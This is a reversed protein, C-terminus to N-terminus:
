NQSNKLSEFYRLILLEYDKQYGLKLSKIMDRFSEEINEYEPLNDPSTLQYEKGSASERKKEYDRDHISKTADLLRSLIRDQKKLTEDDINGSQMDNLVEQMEKKIKELDGLTKREEGGFEKQEKSLEDLSKSAKGQKDTLRGIEARQEMSMSGQGQQMMQQMSQNIMQQQAALQQMRQSFSAGGSGQQGSGAGGPNPCSGGGQMASLMNQMQMAANNMSSMAASQEKSAQMPNRNEYNQQAKQMERLADGIEKAMEPTVALSKDSLEMLSNAVNMLAEQIDAQDRSLNPIQQSNYDASQSMQKLYEQNKSLNLLDSVAKQMKRIAEETIEQQMQERMQQMKQSFKKMNEGAKKQNKSAKSKQGQQMQQSANKMAESTEQKNLESKAQEMMDMPMNDGIEEMLNELEDTQKSLNEFDKNLKDQKKALDELAKKDSPNTNNLEKNLEEQKQAMEESQKTLADAMQEAKMRKLVKMTREISRRFQEDNFEFQEMAQKMQEPTMNKMAESMREQMQKLLPSDLQRLMQQLELYKQMTEPSLLNNEQMKQTTKQLNESIESVKNGIEEQKKFIDQARKKEEWNLEKKDFNKRLDNKLDEIEKKLEQAENLVEKLDKEIKKQENDLQSYMESLSPLRLNVIGTRATKPGSIIDNDAIELFFEYRDEPSINITSLDWVYPVARALDEGVLPINVQKYDLDPKSYPSYTLKYYLKLSKFGFDDSIEVKIPLIADEGLQVDTQPQILKISPFNDNLAVVSYEIPNSNENGSKDFIRLYYKGSESITFKGEANSGNTNLPIYKTEPEEIISLTDSISYPSRKVPIFLVQASDLTVNSNLSLKAITGRLASIDASQENFIRPRLGTYRPYHLEGSLSRIIPKVTVNILGIETTITTSLWDAEGFFQLDKKVSPIKYNYYGKDDPYLKIEDYKEQQIEKIKLRIFEPYDGTSVIKVVVPEGKIVTQKMPEVTLTYPVPPLFSTNFNLLRDFAPMLKFSYLSFSLVFLVLAVLFRLFANKLKKRNVIVDFRREIVENSIEEFAADALTGSYSKKSNIVPYLQLANSLKDKIDNYKEGIRLATKEISDTSFLGIIQAFPAFSTLGFFTITGIFIMGAFVTRIATDGNLLSEAFSALLVSVMLFIFTHLLGVGFEYSLEKRRASNIKSILTKYIFEPSKM